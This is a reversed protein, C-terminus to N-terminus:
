PATLLSKPTANRLATPLPAPASGRSDHQLVRVLTGGCCPQPWALRRGGHPQRGQPPATLLSQPTAKRLASPLPASCVWALPTSLFVPLDGGAAHSPGHPAAAEM